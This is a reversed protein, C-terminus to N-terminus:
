TRRVLYIILLVLVVAVLIGIVTLDGGPNLTHIQTALQHVEQDSLKSLRAEVQDEPLGLERLRQRVVKSELASQITKMDAARDLRGPDTGGAIEAPALMAWGSQKSACVMTTSLILTYVM